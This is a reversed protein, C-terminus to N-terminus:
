CLSLASNYAQLVAADDAVATAAAKAATAPAAAAAVAHQLHRCVARHTV